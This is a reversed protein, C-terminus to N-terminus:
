KVLCERPIESCNRKPSFRCSTTDDHWLNDDWKECAIGCDDDFLAFKSNDYTCLNLYNHEPAFGHRSICNRIIIENKCSVIDILALEYKEKIPESIM